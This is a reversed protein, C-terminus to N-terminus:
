RPYVYVDYREDGFATRLSAIPRTDSQFRAINQRTYTTYDAYMVDYRGPLTTAIDRQLAIVVPRGTAAHLRRATLLMDDLSLDKNGKISFPTITGFRGQRLLWFPKNTHYVVSEGLADPDIILPAGRYEPRDMVAALEAANSFPRGEVTAALPGKFYLVSQIALLLAFAWGSALALLSGHAEESRQQHPRKNGEIWLLAVLFVLFLSAHRYAAPFVFFFFLKLTVFAAVAAIIAPRSRLFVALSLLTFVNAAQPMTHFGLAGFSRGADAISLLATAVTLPVRNVVAAADNVPPYIALFCVLTGLLLLAGNVVLMVMERSRLPPQGAAVEVMRYLLLAGALFVSPANTNCLLFLLCGFLPGEKVREYSIAIAFLVLATIGYNRSVVSFDFGLHLSFLLVAVIGIRYPAKLALLAAAAAGVLFGLGPLVERVGFLLHGARLLIYWLYPHGEGHVARFMGSWSDGGMLMLSWARVEDRWPVHNLTMWLTVALWAGLLLMRAMLTNRVPVDTLLPQRFWVGISNRVYGGRRRDSWRVGSPHDFVARKDATRTSSCLDRARM